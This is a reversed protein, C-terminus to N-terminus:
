SETQQTEPMVLGTDENVIGNDETMGIIRWYGSTKVTYIYLNATETANPGSFTVTVYMEYANSISPTTGYQEKYETLDYDEKNLQTERGFDVDITFGKGYEEDLDGYLFQMADDKSIGMSKRDTEYENKIEKSHCELFKDYDKNQIANFYQEIVETRTNSFIIGSKYLVFFVMAIFVILVLLLFKKNRNPDSKRRDEREKDWQAYLKNDEATRFREPKTAKKYKVASKSSTVKKGYGCKDCYDGKYYNGCSKCEKAM